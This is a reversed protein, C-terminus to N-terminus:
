ADPSPLSKISSSDPELLSISVSQNVSTLEPSMVSVRDLALIITLTVGGPVLDVDVLL